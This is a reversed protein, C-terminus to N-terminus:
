IGLYAHRFTTRLSTSGDSGTVVFTLNNNGPILSFFDGVLSSFVSSGDSKLVTKEKVNIEVWESSTLTITLTFTKGTTTNTLVFVSGAGNIRFIPDTEESGDNTMTQPSSASNSIEQNQSYFRWDPAIMELLFPKRVKNYPYLVKSIAVEARLDLDNLTTFELLRMIGDQKFVGLMSIREAYTQVKKLATVSLLRRGFKSTIFIASQKGAVDEISEVVSPYEFGECVGIEDQDFEISEGSTIDSIKLSKM